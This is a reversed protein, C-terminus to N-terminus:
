ETEDKLRRESILENILASMNSQKNLFDFNEPSTRFALPRSKRGIDYNLKSSKKFFVKGKEKKLAQTEQNPFTWGNRLCIQKQEELSIKNKNWLNLIEKNVEM